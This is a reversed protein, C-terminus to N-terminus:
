AQGTQTRNFFLVAVPTGGPAAAPYVTGWPQGNAWYKFTGSENATVETTGQPQGNLWYKFDGSENAM